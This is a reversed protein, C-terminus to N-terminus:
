EHCQQGGFYDNGNADDEIVNTDDNIEDLDDDDDNMVKNEVLIIMAMPTM